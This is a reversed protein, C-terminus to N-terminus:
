ILSCAAMKMLVLNLGAAFLKRQQLLSGDNLGSNLFVKCFTTKHVTLLYSCIGPHKMSNLSFSENAESSCESFKVYYLNGQCLHVSFIVHFDIQNGM